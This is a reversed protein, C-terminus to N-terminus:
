QRLRPQEPHMNQLHINHIAASTRARTPRRLTHLIQTRSYGMDVLTHDDLALLKRLQRRQRLGHVRKRISTSWEAQPNESAMSRLLPQGDQNQKSPNYRHIREFTKM